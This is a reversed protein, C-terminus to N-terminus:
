TTIMAPSVPDPFVVCNGFIHRSAPQPSRPIIPHVCGRRHRHQLATFRLQQRRCSGAAPHIHARAAAGADSLLFDVTAPLSILRV